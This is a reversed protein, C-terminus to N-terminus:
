KSHRDFSKCFNGKVATRFFTGQGGCESHPYAFGRSNAPLVFLVRRWGQSFKCCRGEQIDRCGVRNGDCHSASTALIDAGTVLTTLAALLPLLVPLYM